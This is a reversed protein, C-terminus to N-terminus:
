KRALREVRGWVPTNFGGSSEAQAQRVQTIAFSGIKSSSVAAVAATLVAVLTEEEQASFQARPKLRAKTQLRFTKKTVGIIQPLPAPKGHERRKLAGFFRPVRAPVTNYFLVVCVGYHHRSAYDDL